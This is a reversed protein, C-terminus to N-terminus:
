AYIAKEESVSAERQQGGQVGKASGQNKYFTSTAKFIARRLYICSWWRSSASVRSSTRNAVQKGWAQQGLLERSHTLGYGTVM